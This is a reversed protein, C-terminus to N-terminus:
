RAEPAPGSEVLEILQRSPTYYWAIRRGGFAVAPVPQSVVLCKSGQAHRLAAEIDEVEYCVHYAGGGQALITRIPSDPANSAIFEIVPEGPSSGGLFCVAVKQIPDNFPGSLLRYGFLEQYSPLAKAIDPVAVGLHHFRM